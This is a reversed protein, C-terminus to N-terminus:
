FQKNKQDQVELRVDQALEKVVQMAKRVRTGASNNGEIFKIVDTQCDNITDQLQDFTSDLPNFSM